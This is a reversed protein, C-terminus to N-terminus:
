SRHAHCSARKVSSNLRAATEQFANRLAVIRPAIASGRMTTSRSKRAENDLLLTVQGFIESALPASPGFLSGAPSTFRAFATHARSNSLRVGLPLEPACQEAEFESPLASVTPSTAPMGCRFADVASWAGIEDAGVRGM